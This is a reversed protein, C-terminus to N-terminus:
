FPLDDDNDKPIMETVTEPPVEEKQYEPASQDNKQPTSVIDIKEARIYAITVKQGEKNTFSNYRLQGQIILYAGKRIWGEALSALGKWCEIRHWQTEEKKLGDKTKWKESTALSFNAKSVGSELINIEPDNGVRGSLTITNINSM